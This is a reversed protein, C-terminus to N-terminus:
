VVATCYYDVLKHALSRDLTGSEVQEDIHQLLTLGTCDTRRTTRPDERLYLKGFAALLDAGVPGIADEHMAGQWSPPLGMKWADVRGIGHQPDLSVYIRDTYEFGGIPLYRLKGDFTRGDTDAAEEALELEHEIWGRLDHYGRSGDFFLECWSVPEPRGLMPVELDYDLSGGACERWLALLGAPLPAACLAAIEALREAALPRQAQFIVRGAFLVFGCQRLTALERADFATTM